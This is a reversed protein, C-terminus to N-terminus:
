MRHTDALLEWNNNTWTDHGVLQKKKGDMLTTSMQQKAKEADATQKKQCCLREKGHPVWETPSPPSFRNWCRDALLGTRGGLSGWRREMHNASRMVEPTKRCPSKSFGDPNSLSSSATQPGQGWGAKLDLSLMICISLTFLDRIYWKLRHIFIPRFGSYKQVEWNYLGIYNLEKKLFILENSNPNWWNCHVVKHGWNEM